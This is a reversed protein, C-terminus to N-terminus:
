SDVKVNAIARKPRVGLGMITERRNSVLSEHNHTGNAKKKIQKM